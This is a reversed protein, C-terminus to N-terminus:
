RMLGWTFVVPVGTKRRMFAITGQEWDVSEGTLNAVDGQSAGLHWCMLYFAKREPNREAAILRRHEEATIARKEKHRVAPWQRKPVLPWPLWGMDVVFNHLRRLFMNTSVTGARLAQLISEAHTECIVKGLLPALARDHAVTIWRERNAGHKM